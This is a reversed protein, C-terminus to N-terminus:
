ARSTSGGGACFQFAVIVLVILLTAGIGGGVPLPMGGVRTGGSAGGLRGRRDIVGGSRRRLRRWKM